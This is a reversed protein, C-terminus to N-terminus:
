DVWCVGQGSHVDEEKREVRANSRFMMAVLMDYLHDEFSGLEQVGGVFDERGTTVFLGVEIVGAGDPSALTLVVVDPETLKSHCQTDFVGKAVALNVLGLGVDFPESRINRHKGV